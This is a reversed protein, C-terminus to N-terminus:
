KQGEQLSFYKDMVLLSILLEQEMDFFQRMYQNANHIIQEAEEPHHNFYQIKEELDSYDDKLEVYHIGNKLRGEMLWTEYKPKTMFCLSNSAFIWKLNTAVDNGEISLIYRYQLQQKISLFEKHYPTNLSKQHICGVNCFPHNYFKELFYIRHPQHAAGRWVLEKRKERFPKHDPYTYFHRVSDLKLLIANENHACIPRSKVFCPYPPVDTIDGFAKYFRNDAPFYKLLNVLDLFYVSGNGKLSFNAIREATDDISYSTHLQNYYNIREQIIAFRELDQQRLHELIALKHPRQRQYLIKPVLYGLSNRLYFGLRFTSAHLRSHLDRM